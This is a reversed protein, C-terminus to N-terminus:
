VDDGAECGKGTRYCLKDTTIRWRNMCDKVERDYDGNGRVSSNM